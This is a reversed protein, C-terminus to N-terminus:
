DVRRFVAVASSVTRGVNGEDSLKVRALIRDRDGTFVAGSTVFPGIKGAQMYMVSWDEIQLQDTGAAATALEFAATELVIQIPGHHLSGSTSGIRQTLEPLEFGDGRRRAGFAEHLPPLEPSDPVGPGPDVYQYGAPAAALQVGMGETVALVRDPHDADLVLATGGFSLRRGSYGDGEARVRIERVDRGPDLVHLATHVPAPVGIADGVVGGVDALAIGLPAALLGGSPNRMDRRIRLGGERGGSELDSYTGLYRYTMLGDPGGMVANFREWFEEAPAHQLEDAKAM